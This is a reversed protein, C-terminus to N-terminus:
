KVNEKVNLKDTSDIKPKLDSLRTFRCQDFLFNKQTLKSLIYPFERTSFPNKFNHM